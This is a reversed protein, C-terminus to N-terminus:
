GQEALYISVRSQINEAAQEATKDGAFYGQAEEWLISIVSAGGGSLVSASEITQIAQAELDEITERSVGCAQALLTIDDETLRTLASKRIPLGLGEAEV